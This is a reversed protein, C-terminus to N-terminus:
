PKKVMLIDKNKITTLIETELQNKFTRDSMLSNALNGSSTINVNINVTGSGEVRQTVTQETKTETKSVTNLGQFSNKFTNEKPQPKSLEKMQLYASKMIGLNEDLNPAFLAQDDEIFSFMEGKGTLLKKKGDNFFGDQTPPTLTLKGKNKDASILSEIWTVVNSGTNLTNLSTAEDEIKGLEEKAKTTTGEALLKAGGQTTSMAKEVSKLIDSREQPSLARVVTEKIIKTDKLQDEALTLGQMAIDKESKKAMEDYKKIAAELQAPGGQTKLTEALDDFKGAGPIELSIKGDPGIEALKSILGQQKEDFMKGEGFLNGLGSDSVKKIIEAQKAAERGMNMFKDFDSEKGVARLQEYLRQQAIANSEIKGTSEDVSFASKSLEVLENQLKGVDNAGMNMLQFPNKMNSMAGGLMSMGAAAEVAKEPDFAFGRGLSAAGIDDITVGLRQAQLVMKTLGEVGNKFNYAAVKTLQKQVEILTTKVNLGSRRVDESIKKILDMSGQQSFTLKMFEGTMKGVETSALGTAKSVEVMQEVVKANPEVVRGLGDVLGQISETIDKFSGGIALIGDNLGQTGFYIKELKERFKEANAPELAIGSITRQLVKAKSEMGTLIEINTEPIASDKAATYLNKIAESYLKFGEASFEDSIAPDQFLWMMM